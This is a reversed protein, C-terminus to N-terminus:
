TDLPVNILIMLVQPALSIVKINKLLTDWFMTAALISLCIKIKDFNPIKAM